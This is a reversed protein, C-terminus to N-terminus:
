KRRKTSGSLSEAFGKAIGKVHESQASSLDEAREQKAKFAKAHSGLAKNVINSLTRRKAEQAETINKKKVERHERINKKKLQKAERKSSAQKASSESISSMTRGGSQAAGSIISAYDGYNSGGSGSSSAPGLNNSGWTSM